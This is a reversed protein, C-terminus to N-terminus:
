ATQGNESKNAGLWSKLQRDINIYNCVIDCQGSARVRVQSGKYSQCTIRTNVVPYNSRTSLLIGTAAWLIGTATQYMTPPNGTPYIELVEVSFAGTTSADWPIPQFDIIQSRVGSANTYLLNGSTWNDSLIHGTATLM